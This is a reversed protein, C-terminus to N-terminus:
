TWNECVWVIQVAAIVYDFKVGIYWWVIKGIEIQSAPESTAVGAAAGPETTRRYSGRSRRAAGPQGGGGAEVSKTVGWDQRVSWMYVGGAARWIEGGCDSPNPFPILPLYCLSSLFFCCNPGLKVLWVWTPYVGVRCACEMLCMPHLISRLKFALGLWVAWDSFATVCLTIFWSSLSFCMAFTTFWFQLPVWRLNTRRRRPPGFFSLPADEHDVLQPAGQGDPSSPIPGPSTADLALHCPRPLTSSPHHPCAAANRPSSSSPLRLPLAQSEPLASASTRTSPQGVRTFFFHRMKLWSSGGDWFILVQQSKSTV